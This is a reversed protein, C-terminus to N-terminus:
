PRRWAAWGSRPVCRTMSRGAWRPPQSGVSTRRMTGASRTAAPASCTTCIASGGRSARAGPRRFPGCRPPDNRGMPRASRPLRGGTQSLRRLISLAVDRLARVDGPLVDRAPRENVRTLSRYPRLVEFRRRVADASVDPCALVVQEITIGSPGADAFAHLISQDVGVSGADDVVANANRALVTFVQRYIGLGASEAANDDFTLAAADTM